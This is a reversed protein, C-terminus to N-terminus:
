INKVQLMAKQLESMYGIICCYKGRIKTTFLIDSCLKEEANYLSQPSLLVVNLASNMDTDQKQVERLRDATLEIWCSWEEIWEQTKFQEQPSGLPIMSVQMQAISVSNM